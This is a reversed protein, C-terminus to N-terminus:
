SKCYSKLNSLSKLLSKYLFQSKFYYKHIQLLKKPKDFEQVTIKSFFIRNSVNKPIQLINKSQGKEAETSKRKDLNNIIINIHVGVPLSVQYGCCLAPLLWVLIGRYSPLGAQRSSHSPRQDLLPLNWSSIVVLQHLWSHYWWKSSCQLVVEAQLRDHGQM